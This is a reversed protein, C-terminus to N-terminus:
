DKKSHKGKVFELNSDCLITSNLVTDILHKIKLAQEIDPENENIHAGDNGIDKVGILADKLKKVIHEHDCLEQIIKYLTQKNDNVKAIGYHIGIAHIVKRFATVAGNPADASICRIGEQYYKDIEEPLGELGKLMPAPYFKTQTLSFAVISSCGECQLPVTQGTIKSREFGYKIQRFTARDNCYPCRGRVVVKNDCDVDGIKGRLLEIKDEM